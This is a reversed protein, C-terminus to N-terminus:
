RADFELMTLDSVTMGLDVSKPALAVEKSLSKTEYDHFRFAPPAGVDDQGVYYFGDTVLVIDGRPPMSYDDVLREPNATVDGALSCAFIGQQNAKVYLLESGDAAEVAGAGEFLREIAGDEVRV